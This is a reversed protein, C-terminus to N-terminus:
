SLSHGSHVREEAVSDVEAECISDSAFGADGDVGHVGSHECTCLCNRGQKEKGEENM